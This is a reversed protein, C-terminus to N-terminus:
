DFILRNGEERIPHNSWKTYYQPEDNFVCITTTGDSNRNISRIICHSRMINRYSIDFEKENLVLPKLIPISESFVFIKEKDELQKHDCILDSTTFTWESGNPTNEMLPEKKLYSLVYRSINYRDDTFCDYKIFREGMICEIQKVNNYYEKISQYIPERMSTEFPSDSFLGKIYVQKGSFLALPLDIWKLAENNNTYTKKFEFTVNVNFGVINGNKDIGKTDIFLDYINTEIVCRVCGEEKKFLTSNVPEFFGISPIVIFLQKNQFAPAILLSAMEEKYGVTLGNYDLSMETLNNTSLKLAPIKTNPIFDSFMDYKRNIIADFLNKDNTSFHIKVEKGKPADFREVKNTVEGESVVPVLNHIRCYRAFTTSTIWRRQFDRKVNKNLSEKLKSLLDSAVSDYYTINTQALREIKYKKIGPAILYFKRTKGNTERKLEKMIEFVNSDELSYGIFLIDKTLLETQILNWLLPNRKHTFFDTYDDKTIIINDREVFDGHIKFIQTKDSPLSVCDNTNRVVYCDNTVYADELLTDYNTTIIKHFHPILPLYEHDTLDIRNFDMEKEIIELLSDRGYIQEYEGAVYDLQHGSLCSKEEEKMHSLISEVLVSSKPGGAKLSFGSGIFLTVEEKRIREILENFDTM